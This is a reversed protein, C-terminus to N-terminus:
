QRRRTARDDSSRPARRDPDAPQGTALIEFLARAEPSLPREKLSDYRKVREGPERDAGKTDGDHRAVARDYEPGFRRKLGGRGGGGRARGRRVLFLAAAAVVLVAVVVAIIM